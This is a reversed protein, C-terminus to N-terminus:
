IDKIHNKWTLDSDITIGLFKTFMVQELQCNSLMIPIKKDDPTNNKFIIYNTKKINVSLKNAMFWDAVHVSERNVTLCM